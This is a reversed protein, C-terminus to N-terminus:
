EPHRLSPYCIAVSNPLLKRLEREVWELAITEPVDVSYIGASPLRGTNCGLQRLNHLVPEIGSPEDIRLIWITTRSSHIVHSWTNVVGEIDAEIKLVDQASLDKVFLPAALLRFGNEEAVFPLSESSVPPWGDVVNLEFALTIPNTMDGM